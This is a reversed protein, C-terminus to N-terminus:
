RRRRQSAAHSQSSSRRELFRNLAQMEESLRREVFQRETDTLQTALLKRYRRVNAEHTWRVGTSRVARVRPLARQRSRAADIPRSVANTTTYPVVRMSTAGRPPPDDESDLRRLASLIDSLRMKHPIGPIERLAPNSQAAYMDSAWSSLIMRKEATSLGPDGLVDAPSDYHSVPRYQADVRNITRTTENM